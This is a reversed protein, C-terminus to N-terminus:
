RQLYVDEESNWGIQIGKRTKFCSEKPTSPIPAGRLLNRSSASYLHENCSIFHIFRFNYNYLSYPNIKVGKAEREGIYFIYASTRSGTDGGQLPVDTYGEIWEGCCAHICRQLRKWTEHM